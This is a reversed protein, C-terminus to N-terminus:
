AATEGTVELLGVAALEQLLGYLDRECRDSTVDYENLLMDRIDRVPKPEQILNWIRAGVSDLGYYVGTKLDLIVVEGALDCSVQDKAVQIISCGSITHQTM